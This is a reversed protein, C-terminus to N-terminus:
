FDRIGEAAMLEHWLFDPARGLTACKRRRRARWLCLRDSSIQACPRLGGAQHPRRRAAHRRRRARHFIGGAAIQYDTLSPSKIKPSFQWPAATPATFLGPAAAEHRTSYTDLFHAATPRFIRRRAHRSRPDTAGARWRCLPSRSRYFQREIPSQETSTFYVQGNKEDVGALSEVEWDGHTLQALQKGALDYLYLHRFGSRESSWLFRKDDALFHLDDSVISGTNTRSPSPSKRNEPPRTPSSCISAIRRAISASSPWAAPITCGPLVRSCARQHGSRHGDLSADGGLDRAVVGVRAIPNPSGAIPYREETLSAKLRSITSWRINKSTARTSSCSPLKRPIPRGGTAPTCHRAGRSLGLRTRRQSARRHRRPHDPAAAGGAVSAVGFDHARLFSVWRGDPSIKADDIINAVDSKSADDSSNADNSGADGGASKLTPGAIQKSTQSKLDYWFLEEASVFLLARSDPSWLYRSPAVRGLGTQQGRSAAPLLVNRLRDADVLTQRRGTSADVGRIETQALYSLWKGDPSWIADGLRAGGLGPASYIRQVTLDRGRDSQPTAQARLAFAALLCASCSVVLFMARGAPRRSVPGLVFDRALRPVLM